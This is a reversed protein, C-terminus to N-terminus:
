EEPNDGTRRYLNQRELESYKATSYEPKIAEPVVFDCTRGMARDKIASAVSARNLIAKVPAAFQDNTAFEYMDMMEHETYGYQQAWYDPSRLLELAAQNFAWLNVANKAIRIWGYEKIVFLRPDNNKNQLFTIAAPDAGRSESKALTEAEVGRVLWYRPVREGPEMRLMAAIAFQAHEASVLKFAGQPTLWWDEILM